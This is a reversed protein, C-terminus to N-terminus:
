GDSPPWGAEGRLPDVPLAAIPNGETLWDLGADNVSCGAAKLRETLQKRWEAGTTVRILHRGDVDSVRRLSGIQVLVTRDPHRGFAMGSEFLVNPRAQPTPSTEDSSENPGRLEPRLSALDDGTLLVVVAQAAAFGADLVEGIYPSAKGTLKVVTEWELPELGIARLFRFIERRAAENRGHVVFVQKSDPNERDPQREVQHVLVFDIRDIVSELYDIKDQLHALFNEALSALVPGDFGVQVWRNDIIARYNSSERASVRSALYGENYRDWKTFERDSQSLDEKTKPSTKWATALAIRDRLESVITEKPIHSPPQEHSL